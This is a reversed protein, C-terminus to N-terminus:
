RSRQGHNREGCWTRKEGNGNPFWNKLSTCDMMEALNALGSGFARVIRPIRALSRGAFPSFMRHKLPGCCGIPGSGNAAPGQLLRLNRIVHM